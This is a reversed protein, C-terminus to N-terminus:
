SLLLFVLFGYCIRDIGQGEQKPLLFLTQQVNTSFITNLPNHKLWSTHRHQYKKTCLWSILELHCIQITYNNYEIRSLFQSFLYKLSCPHIASHNGLCLRKFRGFQVRNSKQKHPQNFAFHAFSLQIPSVFQQSGDSINSGAFPFM